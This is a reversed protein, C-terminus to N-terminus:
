AIQKPLKGVGAGTFESVWVKNTAIDPQLVSQFLGATRFLARGIKGRFRGGAATHPFHIDYSRPM